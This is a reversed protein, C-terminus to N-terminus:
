GGVQSKTYRIIVIGSGGYGSFFASQQSYALSKGGGGGGGGTNLYGDGFFQRGSGDSIFMENSDGNDLAWGGPGGGGPGGPASYNVRYSGGGGGGSFRSDKGTSTPSTWATYLGGIGGQGGYQGSGASGSSGAGSGGVSGAAFTESVALSGGSSSQGNFSSINGVTSQSGGAGVLANYTNPLLTASAVTIAGGGGGGGGFRGGAGSAVILYECELSNNSVVLDATSTFTRYYYTSDSSLTGGTVILPLATNMGISIAAYTM